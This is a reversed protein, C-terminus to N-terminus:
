PATVDVTWTRDAVPGTNGAADTAKVKFDHSGETLGTYNEPSACASFAGGDLSCQFTSGAETSSFAFSASNSRVTGTPGSTISADPPTTDISVALSHSRGGAVAVVGSLNSM